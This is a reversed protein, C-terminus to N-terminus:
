HAANSSKIADQDLQYVSLFGGWTTQYILNVGDPLKKLSDVFPLLRVLLSNDAGSEKKVTWVRYFRNEKQALYNGEGEDQSWRKVQAIDGHLNNGVPFNKVILPIRIGGYDAFEAQRLLLDNSVVIYVPRKKGFYNAMEALAKQSDMTLWGAMKTLRQQEDQNAEVLRDKVAKWVPSKFTEKAPKRIWADKGSLFHVRQGDDWWSVILADDEAHRAIVEAAAQWIKQRVGTQTTVLESASKEEPFLVASQAAGGQDKY